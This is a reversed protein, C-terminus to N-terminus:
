EQYNLFGVDVKAKLVKEDNQNKIIVKINARKVSAHLENVEGEITLTDNIYVPNLYKTEVGQLLCYKGPLLVGVLKSIFSTTLLGYVVRDQYGQSKSFQEDIHLPNRDDSINLFDKMMEESVVVEFSEKMGISLDEFRYNNM